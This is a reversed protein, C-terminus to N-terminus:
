FSNIREFLPCSNLPRPRQCSARSPEAQGRTLPRSSRETTRASRNFLPPSEEVQEPLVRWQHRRFTSGVLLSRRRIGHGEAATRLGAEASLTGRPKVKGKKM